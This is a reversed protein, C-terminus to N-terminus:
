QTLEAFLVMTVQDQRRAGASSGHPMSMSPFLSTSRLVFPLERDGHPPYDPCETDWSVIRLM